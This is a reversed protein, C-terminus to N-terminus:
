ERASEGRRALTAQLLRDVEEDSLAQLQALLAARDSPRRQPEIRPTRARHGAARAAEVARALGALTPDDFLARLPVETDFEHRVRALVQMGLLSHGGLDFFRDHRGVAPVSLVEMWIRALARETDGEPPEHPARESAVADPAPLRNRDIKGNPTVPFEPLSVFVAPVMHEPLERRLQDRLEAPVVIAGPQPVVYAVLRPGSAARDVVVLPQRVSELRALVSEIEGLEIRMGRLKVQHDARGLYELQGDDRFRGRDGTRFTRSGDPDNAFKAATLEPREHYGLAVGDGAICIEGPVGIPTVRGHADLTLVRTNDIPRGIPVSAGARDRSADFCTADAAVESSGYLNLLRVHPLAARFREFLDIPLEEGSTVCLRLGALRGAADEVHDLLARLLSPVLVLRTIGHGQIARALRVPDRAV